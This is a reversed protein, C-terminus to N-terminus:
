NIIEKLKKPIAVKLDRTGGGPTYRTHGNQIAFIGAAQIHSPTPFDPEGVSM